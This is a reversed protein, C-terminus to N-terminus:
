QIIQRDLLGLVGCHVRLGCDLIIKPVPFGSVNGRPKRGGLSRPHECNLMKYTKYYPAQRRGECGEYCELAGTYVGCWCKRDVEAGDLDVCEEHVGAVCGNISEVKYKGCPYEPRGAADCFSDKLLTPEMILALV